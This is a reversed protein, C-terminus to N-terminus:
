RNGQVRNGSIKSKRQQGRYAPNKSEGSFQGVEQKLLTLLRNQDIPKSMWDIVRCGLEIKQEDKSPLCASIVIVPFNEFGKQLRLDKLIELGNQDPLNLDLMMGAYQREKLMRKAEAATGAIDARYGAQGLILRLLKSIDPEDECILLQPPDTLMLPTVLAGAAEDPRSPGDDKENLLELDFYFAIEGGHAEVMMKVISLGLGTGGKQRQDSSDVQTFKDFITAQAAKPIGRGHDQVQV